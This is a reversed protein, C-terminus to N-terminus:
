LFGNVGLGLYSLTRRDLMCHLEKKETGRSVGEGGVGGLVDRLSKDAQSVTRLHMRERIEGLVM